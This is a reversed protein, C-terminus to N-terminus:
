IGGWCSNSFSCVQGSNLVKLKWIRRLKSLIEFPRFGRVKQSGEGWKKLIKVGTRQYGEM